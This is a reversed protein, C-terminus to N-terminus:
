RRSRRPRRWPTKWRRRPMTGRPSPMTPLPSTLRTLATVADNALAVDAEDGAAAPADVMAVADDGSPEDVVTEDVVTEDTAREDAVAEGDRTAEVPADSAELAAIEAMTEASDVTEAELAEVLAEPEVVGDLAALAAVGDLGHDAPTARDVLGAAIADAAVPAAAIAEDRAAMDLAGLAEPPSLADVPEADDASMEDLWPADAVVPMPMEPEVANTEDLDALAADTPDAAVAPAPKAPVGWEDADISIPSFAAFSADSFPDEMAVVIPAVVVPAVVVPAVVAPAAIPSAFQAIEEPATVDAVAGVVPIAAAVDDAIDVADVGTPPDIALGADLPDGMVGGEDPIPAVGEAFTVLTLPGFPAVEVKALKLGLMTARLGMVARTREFTTEGTAARSAFRAVLAAVTGGPPVAKGFAVAGGSFAAAARNALVVHGLSDVGFVPRGDEFVRAVSHAREVAERWTIVTRADAATHAEISM